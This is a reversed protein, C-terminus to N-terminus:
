SPRAPALADILADSIRRAVTGDVRSASYQLLGSLGDNEAILTLELSFRSAVRPAMVRMSVGGCDVPAPLPPLLQFVVDELRGSAQQAAPLLAYPYHQHSRAEDVVRAAERVVEALGASRPVRVRLIVLNAFMGVTAMAETRHRNAFPSALSVETIDLERSLVVAFAAVLVAFLTTKEEQALARLAVVQDPGLRLPLTGPAGNVSRPPPLPVPVAGDLQGEWYARSEENVRDQRRQWELAHRFQWAVRPLERSGSLLQRLEDVIIQSSWADTTLHHMNVCLVHETPGRSWLTVRVGDRRPDIPTSIERDILEDLSRQSVTGGDVIEVAAPAHTLQILRGRRREFTTRLAEHRAVITSIARELAARDLDGTLALLLPYNLCGTHARHHDLMWLMRQPVSAAAERIVAGGGASGGRAPGGGASGGRAPGGGASGGRAPGGGASASV